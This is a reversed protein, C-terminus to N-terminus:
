NNIFSFAYLITLGLTKGEKVFKILFHILIPLIYFIDLFHINIYYITMYASLSYFLSFVYATGRRCKLDAILFYYIASSSLAIKLILTVYGALQTDEIVYAIFSFPSFVFVSYMAMTPSGMGLSFSYELSKGHLLAHWFYKFFPLYETLYDGYVLIKDQGPLMKRFFLCISLIVVPALGALITGWVKSSRSGTKDM